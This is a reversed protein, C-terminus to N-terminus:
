HRNINYLFGQPITDVPLAWLLWLAPIDLNHIQRMASAYTYVVCWGDNSLEEAGCSTRCIDKSCMGLAYCLLWETVHVDHENLYHQQEITNIMINAWWDQRIILWDFQTVTPWVLGIKLHYNGNRYDSNCYDRSITVLVIKLRGITMRRNTVRVIPVRRITVSASLNRKM